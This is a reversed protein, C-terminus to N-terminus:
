YVVTFSKSCVHMWVTWSSSPGTLKVKACSSTFAKNKLWFRTKSAAICNVYMWLCTRPLVLWLANNLLVFAELFEIAIQSRLLCKWNFACQLKCIVCPYMQEGDFFCSFFQPPPDPGLQGRLNLRLLTAALNCLIPENWFLYAFSLWCIRCYVLISRLFRPVRARIRKRRLQRTRLIPRHQHLPLPLHFRIFFTTIDLGTFCSCRFLAFVCSSYLIVFESHACSLSYNLGHASIFSESLPLSGRVLLLGFVCTLEFCTAFTIGFRFVSNLALFIILLIKWHLIQIPKVECRQILKTQSSMDM